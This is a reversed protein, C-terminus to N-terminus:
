IEEEKVLKMVEQELGTNEKRKWWVLSWQRDCKLVVKKQFSVYM